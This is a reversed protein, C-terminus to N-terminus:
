LMEGCVTPSINGHIHKLFSAAKKVGDHLFAVIEAGIRLQCQHKLHTTNNDSKIYSWM